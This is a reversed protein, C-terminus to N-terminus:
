YGQAPYGPIQRRNNGILGWKMLDLMVGLAIWIWDWGSVGTVPNWILVYMIMTYPLFIIGLIPIIVTDFAASIRSGVIWMFILVLRPAFAAAMALLCGCGLLM